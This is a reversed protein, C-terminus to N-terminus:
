VVDFDDGLKIDLGKDGLREQLAKVMTELSLIDLRCAILARRTDHYRRYYYVGLRIAAKSEVEAETRQKAVAVLAHRYIALGEKMVKQEEATM